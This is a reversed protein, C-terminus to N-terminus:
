SGRARPTRAQLDPDSRYLAHRSRYEDLTLPEAPREHKRVHDRGWTSEYIYDGLFAILDPSDAVVHRYAGFYGQEYQQCSAFAFKLKEVAANAAPATRTRGVPSQVDGALFRYWYWRDAELGHVDVHV